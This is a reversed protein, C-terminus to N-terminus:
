KLPFFLQLAPNSTYQRIIEPSNHIYNKIMRTFESQDWEQYNNADIATYEKLCIWTPNTFRVFCLSQFIIGSGKHYDKFNTLEKFLDSISHKSQFNLMSHNFKLKNIILEIWFNIWPISNDYIVQYKDIEQKCILHFDNQNTLELDTTCYKCKKKAIQIKM